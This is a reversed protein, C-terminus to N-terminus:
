NSLEFRIPVEVESPVARKGSLAPQFVWLSVAEVAATDLSSFGSSGTVRCKVPYGHADLSVGVTVLGQERRKRAEKPYAPKPARLYGASVFDDMSILTAPNRECPASVANRDPMPAAVSSQLTPIKFDAANVSEIVPVKETLEVKPHYPESAPENRIDGAPISSESQLQPNTSAKESPAFLEDAALTIEVLNEGAMTSRPRLKGQSSGSLYIVSFVAGHALTSALLCLQLSSLNM